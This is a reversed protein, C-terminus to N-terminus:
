LEGGGMQPMAALQAPTVDREGGSAWAPLEYEQITDAVGAFYGAAECCRYQVAITEAEELGTDLIPEPVRYVVCDYPPTQEVAIVHVPIDGFGTHVQVGLRYWGMQIHTGFGYCTRFFDRPRISQTTKIDFIGCREGYGDLRAMAEGYRPSSWDISVEHESDSIMRHADRHSHVSAMIALLKAHEDRSVIWEADHAAKFEAWANGRKAGEWIEVEAAFVDPELVAAHILTGMRMAPTQEKSEGTMADRMHKMSVRGAKIASASLRGQGRYEAQNILTTMM